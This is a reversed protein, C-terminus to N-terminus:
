FNSKVKCINIISTENLAVTKQTKLFIINMWENLSNDVEGTPVKFPLRQM